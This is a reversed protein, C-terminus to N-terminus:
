TPGLLEDFVPDMQPNVLTSGGDVVINQGTLYGCRDSLLFAILEATERVTGLRRAPTREEIGCRWSDSSALIENLPTRIFGPSVCNVRVEPAWELAASSSLAIVAAKAASYPAEGRTPRVGSVSAVNVVAGGNSRLDAAAARLCNYTGTVNVAWILAVEEPTYDELAKLNGLGANNVLGVLPPQNRRVSEFAETVAAPDSVDCSVAVGGLDSAVNRAGDQDRDLVVVESGSEALLRCTAEGIGSAGGTVVVTAGKSRSPDM